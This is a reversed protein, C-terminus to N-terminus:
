DGPGPTARIGLQALLRALAVLPLGTIATPDAGRASAFLAAGRSEFRYGGACDLPGDARVYAEAEDRTLAGLTMEWLEVHALERGDRTDLVVVATWLEHTRGAMGLLQAVAREVTGPKPLTEGDLVAMQDSGIVVAGERLAAESRAKRAALELTGERPHTGAPLSEDCGPPVAEYSIGLSDMLMRRHRSTSALVIAPSGNM